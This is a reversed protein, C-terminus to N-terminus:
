SKLYKDIEWQTIIDRYEHWEQQKYNVYRDFIHEGLAERILPDKKMEEIADGLSLPISEISLKLKEEDSLDFINSEIAVPPILNEKIGQLGAKICVALALYPNASSDASRLEIRTSAGRAAPVRILPSRNSASWAIYMPAEFGSALRKYSNVTPNLIGTMGKAHKMIGAIFNKAYRSLQLPANEDYFINKNGEALSINIHMGSGAQQFLPKPMFTAYMNYKAAISKVVMKFTEIRDAAQLAEYYKFDIEHQGPACEHHAAEINFGMKDLSECIESRVEEGRDIPGFEFYGGKDVPNLVPEQNEDMQFLFFECEPGVTVTFGLESAEALVNKLVCRPDGIFHEGNPRHVDCILRAFESNSWPYILFTDLDPYLYMDSEEIRAFGDISSGDFMCKNSLVKDLLSEGVVVNKFFGFIDTFQLRIFKVNKENVIRLINEKTCIIVM